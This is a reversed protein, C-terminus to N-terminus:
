GAVKPSNEPQPLSRCNKAELSEVPQAECMAQVASHFAIASRTQEGEWKALQKGLSRLVRFNRGAFLEAPDKFEKLLSDSRAIIEDANDPSLRILTRVYNAGWQFRTAEGVSTEYAKKRWDLAEATKEEREAMASLGSMFYYPSQSKELEAMLLSKALDDKGAQQYIYSMQNIVSQREFSDPTAADAAQMESQLQSGLADPLTKKEVKETKKEIEPLQDPDFELQVYLTPLWGALKEARSLAASNRLAFVREGWLTATQARSEKTFVPLALVEEAYYALSDWCVLTLSDSALINQLGTAANDGAAVSLVKDSEEGAGKIDNGQRVLAVLYEMYFRSKTEEDPALTSLKYFLAAADVEEPLSASDQGWSYYALQVYDEPLLESPNDLALRVLMSTARMRNLSLALVSNYKSIDIGGPIRTIEEGAPNFVIMTPYGKVGFEEGKVQAQGTDGDLYVPIFLQTMNIFERTQFVTHKIEQCPPCWVAGWYLFVPKNTELALSFAEEVSGDFWAIGAESPDINEHDVTVVSSELVPESCGAIVILLLLSILSILKQM